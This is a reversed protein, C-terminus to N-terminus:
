ARRRRNGRRPTRANSSRMTTLRRRLWSSSSSPRCSICRVPDWFARRAIPRNRQLPHRIPRPPGRKTYRIPMSGTWTRNTRDPIHSATMPSIEAKERWARAIARARRVESGDGGMGGGGGGRRSFTVADCRGSSFFPIFNKVAIPPNIFSSTFSRIKSAWFSARPHYSIPISGGDDPFEPTRQELRTLKCRTHLTNDNRKNSGLADPRPHTYLRFSNEM